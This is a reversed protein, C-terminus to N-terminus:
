AVWESVPAKAEHLPQCVIDVLTPKDLSIAEKLAAGLKGPEFVRWSKVGFAEAVKAHDTVGFDVPQGLPVAAQVDLRSVVLQPEVSQTLRQGLVIGFECGLQFLLPALGHPRSDFGHDGTKRTM